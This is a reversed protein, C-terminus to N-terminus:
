KMVEMLQGTYINYFVYVCSDNREALYDRPKLEMDSLVKKQKRTLKKLKKM